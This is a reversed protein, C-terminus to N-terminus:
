RLRAIAARRLGRVAAQSVGLLGAIEATSWGAAQYALVARQRDTLVEDARRWLDQREALEAPGPRPDALPAERASLPQLRATRSRQRGSLRSLHSQICRVLYGSQSGHEGADYLPLASLMAVTAEQVLDTRDLGPACGPRGYREAVERALALYASFDAHSQTASGPNM